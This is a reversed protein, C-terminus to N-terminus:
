ADDSLDCDVYDPCLERKRKECTLRYVLYAIAGAAVLVAALITWKKKTCRKM